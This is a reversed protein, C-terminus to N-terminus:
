TMEDLAEQMENSAHLDGRASALTIGKKLIDIADQRRELKEFNYGLQQYAPIYHPDRELLEQLYAVAIQTEGKGAYELAIAYRTFSDDPDKELIEKLKSVREENM